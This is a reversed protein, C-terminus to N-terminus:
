AALLGKKEDIWATFDAAINRPKAARSYTGVLSADPDRLMSQATVAEVDVAFVTDMMVFVHVVGARGRLCTARERVHLALADLDGTIVGIPKCMGVTSQKRHTM